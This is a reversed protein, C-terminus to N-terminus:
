LTIVEMVESEKWCSDHSIVLATKVYESVKKVTLDKLSHDLASTPEDLLWLPRNLMFGTILGLRQREGGSLESIHKASLGCPMKFEETLAKLKEQDWILNRNGRYEMLTTFYEGVTVAPLSVDQDLYYIASRVLEASSSKLPTSNVTILGSDPIVFGLATKFLTTKGRGSEGSLLIKRGEKVELTFNDFIIKESFKLSM